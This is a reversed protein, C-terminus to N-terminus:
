ANTLERTYTIRIQMPPITGTFDSMVKLNMSQTEDGTKKKKQKKFAQRYWM